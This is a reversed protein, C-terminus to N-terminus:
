LRLGSTDIDSTEVTTQNGNDIQELLRLVRYNVINTLRTEPNVKARAIAAAVPAGESGTRNVLAVYDGHPMERLEDGYRRILEDLQM